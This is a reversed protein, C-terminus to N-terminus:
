RSEHSPASARAPKFAADAPGTDLMSVLPRWDDSGASAVLVDGELRGDALMARLRTLDVPGQPPGGSRQYCFQRPAPAQVRPRSQLWALLQPWRRTTREALVWAALGLAALVMGALIWAGDM